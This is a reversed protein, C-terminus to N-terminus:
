DRDSPDAKQLRQVAEKLLAIEELQQQCIAQLQRTKELMAQHEDANENFAQTVLANFTVQQQLLARTYWKTSMWNWFNRVAVILPGVLPANSRFPVERVAWRANLEILTSAQGDGLPLPLLPQATLVDKFVEDAIADLDEHYAGEARRRAVNERVTRMLAEVDIQQDRIEFIEGPDQFAQANRSENADAQM